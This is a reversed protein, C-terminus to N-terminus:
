KPKTFLYFIGCDGSPLLAVEGVRRYKRRLEDIGGFTDRFIDAIGREM